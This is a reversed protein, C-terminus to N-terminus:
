DDDESALVPELPPPEFLDMRGAARFVHRLGEVRPPDDMRLKDALVRYLFKHLRLRYRKKRKTPEGGRYHAKFMRALDVILEDRLAEGPDGTRAKALAEANRKKYQEITTELDNLALRLNAEDRSTLLRDSPGHESLEGLAARVHYATRELSDLTSKPNAAARRLRAYRQYLSATGIGLKPDLSKHPALFAELAKDLDADLEDGDNRILDEDAKKRRERQYERRERKEERREIEKLEDDDQMAGSGPPMGNSPQSAVAGTSPPINGDADTALRLAGGATSRVAVAAM